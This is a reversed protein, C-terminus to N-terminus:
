RSNSIVEHRAGSTKHRCAAIFCHDDWWEDWASGEEKESEPPIKSLSFGNTGGDWNYSIAYVGSAPLLYQKVPGPFDYPLSEFEIVLASDTVGGIKVNTDLVHGGFVQQGKVPANPYILTTGGAPLNEYSWGLATSLLHINDQIDKAYFIFADYKDMNFSTASDDTSFRPIYGQENVTVCPIGDISYYQRFSQKIDYGKFNGYGFVEFHFDVGRTYNSFYYNQSLDASDPIDTGEVLEDSFEYGNLTVTGSFAPLAGILCAITILVVTSPFMASESHSQIRLCSYVM